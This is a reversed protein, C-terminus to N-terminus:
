ELDVLGRTVIIRPNSPHSVNIGKIRERWQFTEEVVQGESNKRQRHRHEYKYEVTARRSPFRSLYGSESASSSSGHEPWFYIAAISFGNIVAPLNGFGKAANVM